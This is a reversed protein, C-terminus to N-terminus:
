PAPYEREKQEIEYIARLIPEVQAPVVVNGLCKLRSVRERVGVAVRPIDPEPPWLYAIDGDMGAPLGDAVGGLGSKASLLGAGHQKETGRQVPGEYEGYIGGWAQGLKGDADANYTDATIVNDVAYADRREAPPIGPARERGDGDADAVDGGDAFGARGRADGHEVARNREPCEADAVHQLGPM